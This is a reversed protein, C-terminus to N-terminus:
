TARASAPGLNNGAWDIQGSAIPPVLNANSSYFPFDM